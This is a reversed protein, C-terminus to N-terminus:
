TAGSSSFTEGVDFWTPPMGSRSSSPRSTSRTASMRSQYLQHSMTPKPAAIWRAGKNWYEKVLKRDRLLRLQAVGGDLISRTESGIIILVDRLNAHMGPWPQPNRLLIPWCRASRIPGGFPEAEGKLISLSEDLQKQAGAGVIPVVTQGGYELAFARSREVDEAPTVAHLAIEWPVNVAGDLSGVIIEELPDWENHCNVVASGTDSMLRLSVTGREGLVTM